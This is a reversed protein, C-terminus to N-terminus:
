RGELTVRDIAWVPDVGKQTFTFCLDHRGPHAAMAGKLVTVGPNGAAPALPLVAIVEGECSDLRVELEGASTAPPRFTIGNVLDGIQFNFPVQGVTAKLGTIGTLDAGKWLWCPHMIDILFVAREGRVPADDELSLTLKDTCGTLQHSDRTDLFAQDVTWRRAAGLPQGDVYTRATVVTSGKLSLPRAYARTPAQGGLGYRTEGIGLPNALTVTAGDPTAEATLQPEVPPLDAQMGLDNLRALDTPLRRAFDAWGPRDKGTWGVEALAAARPWVMRTVRDETRMHETWANAQLGLVHSNEAPTLSAPVPDFEYVERLSVARGRGPPEDASASQRNDLYLLPWPSLVTDHGAKAAAIAGDIGRWSMVTADPALGGALIEDWGILRRGRRELIQGVRSTFWAQMAEEDKVGAAKMKAQVAPNAKWEDKVAEDGGVHIYRGPFLDIVEALVEDIFVFTEDDVNYLYPFIGWDARISTPPNLAAGLHPYAVMAAQAHGPMDIEPVITINRAAAYAVLERVDAQTYFGCYQRPAKTAPDIDTAGAGAPVRCAGVGTLRPYKKIELRWAQDDTLHWHLVNLKHAAMADIFRKIYGVSQFHRASDLMLGRWQFRPADEIRLAPLLAGGKGPQLTALQWVTVGGYFLGGDGAARIVVGGPTVELRYGDGAGGIREASKDRRFVIAGVPATKGVRVALKLGRSQVLFDALRRAANLAAADGPPALIVTHASLRFVGRTEILSQPAPLLAPPAALAAGAWFLATATLALALLRAFARSLTM